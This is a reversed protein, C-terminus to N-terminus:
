EKEVTIQRSMFAASSCRPLHWEPSDALRTAYQARAAAVFGFKTQFYEKATTTLLVMESVGEQAALNLLTQTLRNGIGRGQYAPLVAASRLLGLEGYREWGICGVIRGTNTRAILFNELHEKVGEHPLDANTLLALIEMLSAPAAKAITITENNMPTYHLGLWGARRRLM